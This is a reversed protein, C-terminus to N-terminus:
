SKRGAIVVSDFPEVAAGRSRLERHRIEQVTRSVELCFQDMQIPRSFFGVVNMQRAERVQAATVNEACVIFPLRHLRESREKLLCSLRFGTVGSLNVVLLDIPREAVTRLCEQLRQTTIVTHGIVELRKEIYQRYSSQDVLFLVTGALALETARARERQQRQYDRLFRQDSLDRRRAREISVRPAAGVKAPREAAAGQADGRYVDGPGDKENHPARQRATRIM